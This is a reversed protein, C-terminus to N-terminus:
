RRDPDATQQLDAAPISGLLTEYKGILTEKILRAALEPCIEGTNIILDYGAPDNADRHFYQHIFALRRNDEQRIIKIAQKEGTQEREQLWRVRLEEQAHIKVRVGKRSPLIFNAGRGIIVAKGHDAITLIVRILYKLYRDSSLTDSDIIGQVWYKIEDKRKEDLSEIIQKRMKSTTAIKHVLEKDFVQWNLLEAVQRAIEVGGSGFLRSITVYGIQWPEEAPIEGQGKKSIKRKVEWMKMQKALLHEVPISDTIRSM